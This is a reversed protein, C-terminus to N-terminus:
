KFFVIQAWSLAALWGNLAILSDVLAGLLWAGAQAVPWCVFSIALIVFGTLTIFPILPVILLNALPAILSFTRFQFLILPSTLAIAALTAGALSRLGGLQPLFFLLRIFFQSGYILGITALFSLQFGLDFFLILPNQILMLTIVLIIINFNQTPRGFKEALLLALAMLSARIVSAAAGTFIIFVLLFLAIFYIKKPRAVSGYSLLQSLLQSFILVHYGSVVLIHITGTRRFDNTIQEPLGRTFGFLLGSFFEDLPYPWLGALQRQCRDRFNYIASLLKIKLSPPPPAALLNIAPYQCTASIQYRALYKQYDFDASSSPESLQGTIALWDAYHYSSQVNTKVLVLDPFASSRVTLLTYQERLDPPKIVQGVFSVTRGLSPNSPPLFSHYRIVGGAFFLILLLYFFCSSEYLIALFILLALVGGLFFLKNQPWLDSLSASTIGGIFSLGLWILKQSRHLM